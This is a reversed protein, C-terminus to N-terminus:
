QLRVYYYPDATAWFLASAVTGRPVWAAAVCTRYASQKNHM